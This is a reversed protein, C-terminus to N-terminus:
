PKRLRNQAPKPRRWTGGRAPMLRMDIRRPRPPSSAPGRRRVPTVRLEDETAEHWTDARISGANKAFDIELYDGELRNTNADRARFENGFGHGALITVNKKRM